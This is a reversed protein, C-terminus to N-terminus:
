CGAAAINLRESSPDKSADEAADGAVDRVGVDAELVLVAVELVSSWTFRGMFAKMTHDCSSRRSM